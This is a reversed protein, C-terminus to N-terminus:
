HLGNNEDIWQDIREFIADDMLFEKILFEDMIIAKVPGASRYSGRYVFDRMYLPPQYSDAM